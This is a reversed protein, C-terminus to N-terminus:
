YTFFSYGLQRIEAEPKFSTLLGWLIPYLWALVAIILLLYVLVRSFSVKKRKKMDKAGGLGTKKYSYIPFDLCGYYM